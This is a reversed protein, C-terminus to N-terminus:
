AMKNAKIDYAVHGAKEGTGDKKQASYDMSFKAFNLSFSEMPIEAGSSCSQTFSTILLDEMVITYYELPKDGAKRVHLKAKPIHKGSACAAMLATTATDTSKSVSLDSIDAKGQGGGGGSHVNAANSLGWSFSEIHISGPFQKDKSEGKIGEIELLYDSAM